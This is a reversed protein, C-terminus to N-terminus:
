KRSRTPSLVGRWMRLTQAHERGLRTRGAATIAYHRRARGGREPRPTSLWARTLGLYELRDLAAYVGALSVDRVPDSSCTPGFRSAM